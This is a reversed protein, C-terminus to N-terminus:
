TVSASKTILSVIVSTIILHFPVTSSMPSSGVPQEFIGEVWEDYYGVPRETTDGSPKSTTEVKCTLLVDNLVKAINELTAPTTESNCKTVTLPFDKMPTPPASNRESWGCVEDRWHVTVGNGLVKSRTEKLKIIFYERDKGGERQGCLRVTLDSLVKEEDSVRILVENPREKWDADDAEDISCSAASQSAINWEIYNPRDNQFEKCHYSTTLYYGLVCPPNSCQVNTVSTLNCLVAKFIQDREHPWEQGSCLWSPAYSVKLHKEVDKREKEGLDYKDLRTSSDPHLDKFTIPKLPLVQIDWAELCLWPWAVILIILQLRMM